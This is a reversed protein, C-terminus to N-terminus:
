YLLKRVWGIDVFKKEILHELGAEKLALERGVRYCYIDTLDLEALDDKKIKEKMENYHDYTGKGMKTFGLGFIILLSSSLEALLFSANPGNSPRLFFDYNVDFNADCYCSLALLGIGLFGTSVAKNTYVCKLYDKLGM